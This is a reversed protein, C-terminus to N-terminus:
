SWDLDGNDGEFKCAEVEDLDGVLSEDVAGFEFAFNADKVTEDVKDFGCCTGVSVEIAVPRVWMVGVFAVYMTAFLNTTTRTAAVAATCCATPTTSDIASSAVM